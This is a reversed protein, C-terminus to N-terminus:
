KKEEEKMEVTHVLTSYGIITLGLSSVYVHSQGCVNLCWPQHVTQVCAATMHCICYRGEM